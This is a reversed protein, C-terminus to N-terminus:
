FYYHFNLLIWRERHKGRLLNIRTDPNRCCKVNM